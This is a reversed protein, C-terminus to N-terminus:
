AFFGYVRAGSMKEKQRLVIKQRFMKRPLRARFGSIRTRLGWATFEAGPAGSLQPHLTEPGEIREKSTKRKGVWNPSRQLLVLLQIHLDLM